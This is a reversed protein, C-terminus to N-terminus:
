NIFKSWYWGAYKYHFRAAKMDNESKLKNGLKGHAAARLHYVYGYNDNAKVAKDLDNVVLDYNGQRYHVLARIFHFYSSRQSLEIVNTCDELALDLDIKEMMRLLCRDALYTASDPEEDVLTNMMELAQDFRGEAQLIEIQLSDASTDSLGDKKANELVLNAEDYKGDRVHLRIIELLADFYAPKIETAKTYSALASEPDIGLQLDGLWKYNESNSEIALAAKLDTIAREYDGITQFFYARNRLPGDDDVKAIAVHRDFAAKHKEIGSSAKYNEVELWPGPADAPLVIEVDKRNLLALKKRAPEFESAPLEWRNMYYEEDSIVRTGEKRVSRSFQYGGIEENVDTRGLMESNEYREPLEYIAQYKFYIPYSLQVPLDRLEEKDRSKQIKFTSPMSWLEHRRKDSKTKWGLYALGKATLYGTELEEDYTFDSETILGELVYQLALKERVEKTKEASLQTIADKLKQADSDRLTAKLEFPAPLDTGAALDYTVKAMQYPRGPRRIPIEELAANRKQSPLGYRHTPSDAMDALRTGSHTGDLWYVKGDLEAKVIIHNFAQFSPLREAVADRQKTNVLMPVSKIGLRRLAALLLYTKAKCDGYRMRWTDEPTQPTYNGFGMGNYLYRIKDQVLRLALAMREKKDTTQEAIAQIELDLDGGAEIGDNEPYLASNVRAVDAWSAFSSVEFYNKKKFRAPANKPIKFDQDKTRYGFNLINWGNQRSQEPVIDEKSGRWKIKMKDPWRVLQRTFDINFNESTFGGITQVRGALAKNQTTITFSLRVIDGLQLDEIQTITTLMGNIMQRELNRERRIVEFVDDKATLDILQSGRVIEYRHIILDGQDPHWSPRFLSMMRSMTKASEIRVAVDRYSSVMGPDLQKQQDLIVLLAESEPNDELIQDLNAIQVWEGPKAFIPEASAQANSSM